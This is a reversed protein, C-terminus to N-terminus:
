NLVKKMTMGKNVTEIYEKEPISDKTIGCGTYIQATDNEIKMCRLNVFLDTKGSSGFAFDGNIEGLFGSYYERDYGENAMIFNIGEAKPLGCVAPTPHLAYIIEKLNDSVLTGSIDTKIHLLNGARSTYPISATINNVLPQLANTIYDTVFQQEQQEKEEWITAGTEQYVQTGALAVTQITSNDAKLLQEPTAGMWLGAVPHYFCYAFAMPYAALLKKYLSIVDQGNLASEQVRSVVVKKFQKNNIADVSQQVLNEFDEQASNNALAQTSNTLFLTNNPVIENIIESSHAPIFLTEGDNFPAFVFGQSNFDVPYNTTADNQFIGTVNSSGPKRYVAFPMGSSLQSKFKKFLNTM